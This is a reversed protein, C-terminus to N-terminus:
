KAALARGAQKGGISGHVGASPVADLIEDHVNVIVKRRPPASGNSGAQRANATVGIAHARASDSLLLQIESELAGGNIARTGLVRRGREIVPLWLNNESLAVSVLLTGTQKAVAEALEDGRGDTLQEAALVVDVQVTRLLIHAEALTDVAQADWGLKSFRGTTATAATSHPGVILIRMATASM